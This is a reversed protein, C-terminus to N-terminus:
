QDSETNENCPHRERLQELMENVTDGLEEIEDGTRIDVHTDYRGKAIQEATEVLQSIPSTMSEAFRFALIIVIIVVGIMFIATNQLGQFTKGLVGEAASAARDAIVSQPVMVIPFPEGTKGAGYACIHDIGKYSMQRVGNRGASVEHLVADLDAPDDSEFVELELDEDWDYNQYSKQAIILPEGEHEDGPEGLTVVKVEAVEKWHEPLKLDDFVAKIMLDIGTVGAFDGNPRWVPISVTAVV